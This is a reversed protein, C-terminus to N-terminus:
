LRFLLFVNFVNSFSNCLEKVSILFIGEGIENACERFAEILNFNGADFEFVAFYERIM